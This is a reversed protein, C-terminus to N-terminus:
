RNSYLYIYVVSRINQWERKHSDTLIIFHMLSFPMVGETNTSIIEKV